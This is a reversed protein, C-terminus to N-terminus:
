LQGKSPGEASQVASSKSSTGTDTDSADGSSSSGLTTLDIGSTLALEQLAAMALQKARTLEEPPEPFLVAQVTHGTPGIVSPFIQKLQAM